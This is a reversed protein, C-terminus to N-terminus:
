PNPLLMYPQLTVRHILEVLGVIAVLALKILLMDIYPESFGLPTWRPLHRRRKKHDQYQSSLQRTQYSLSGM